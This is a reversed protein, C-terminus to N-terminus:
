HPADPRIQNLWDGLLRNFEAPQEFAVLHGAQAIVQLQAGPIARALKASEATAILADEAGTLILTPVAIQALLPTADPREAMGLLAGIMGEPRATAMLARVQAARGADPQSAACLKPAMADIVVHAGEALVKAATTRRGTAAEASDPGSQTSVLVLGHLMGPFQQAFALAVYGGMSHGILFVPGTGLHQLLAHVEAAQRAMTIPGPQPESDGFGMLDPAIVRHTSRFADVQPQWVARSFPFGHLFVLPRGQGIDTTSLNQPPLNNM